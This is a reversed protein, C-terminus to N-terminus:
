VNEFLLLDKRIYGSYIGKENRCFVKAWGNDTFAWIKIQADVDVTEVIDSNEDPMKRINTRTGVAASKGVYYVQNVTQEGNQIQIINDAAAEGYGSSVSEYSEAVDAYCVTPAACIAAICLLLFRKKM